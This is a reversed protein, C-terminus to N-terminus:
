TCFIPPTFRKAQGRSINTSNSFISLSPESLLIFRQAALAATQWIYALRQADNINGWQFNQVGIVELHQHWTPDFSEWDEIHYEDMNINNKKIFSNIHRTSFNRNMYAGGIKSIIPSTVVKLLVRGPVTNYLFRLIKSEKYDM